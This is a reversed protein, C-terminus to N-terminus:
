NSPAGSDFFHMNLTCTELDDDGPCSKLDLKIFEHKKLEAIPESNLPIPPPLAKAQLTKIGQEKSLVSAHDLEAPPLSTVTCQAQLVPM